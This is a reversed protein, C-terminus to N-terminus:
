TGNRYERIEPATAAFVNSAAYHLLDCHIEMTLLCLGPRSLIFCGAAPPLSNFESLNFYM